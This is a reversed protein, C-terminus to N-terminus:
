RGRVAFSDSRTLMASRTTGSTPMVTGPRPNTLDVAALGAPDPVLWRGQVPSQQRFLFDYLGTTGNVGSDSKTDQTQGTFSRGTTATEGYPEGNPAYSRDYIAVQAPTTGLRSSGLWDAHRVYQVGSSNFVEVMGGVMPLFYNVLDSHGHMTAFKSGDPQYLIQTLTGGNNEEAVRGFADYIVQVADVNVARGQFDYTYTHTGDNRPQGGASRISEV